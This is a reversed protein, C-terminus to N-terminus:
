TGLPKDTSPGVLNHQTVIARRQVKLGEVQVEIREKRHDLDKSNRRSSILGATSPSLLLLKPQDTTFNGIGLELDLM